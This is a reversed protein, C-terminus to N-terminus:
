VSNIIMYENNFILILKSNDTESTYGLVDILTISKSINKKLKIM